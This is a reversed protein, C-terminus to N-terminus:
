CATNKCNTIVTVDLASLNAAGTQTLHTGDAVRNTPGTLSDVNAGQRCTACGTAVADAEAATITASTTNATMSETPVIFRAPTIGETTFAAAYNRICAALTAQATGANKDSEGGHAVIWTDGTFGTGATLHGAALQLGLVTIRKRLAGSVWDSCLTGGIAISAVVVHTYAGNTILGDAIQCNPSNSGLVADYGTGLVPNKCDYIKANYLNFNYSNAQTTAYTGASSSEILSQWTTIVLATTSPLTPTRLTYGTPNGIGLAASNFEGNGVYMTLPSPTGSFSGIQAPIPSM